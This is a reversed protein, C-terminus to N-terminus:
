LFAGLLAIKAGSTVKKVIQYVLVLNLFGFLFPGFRLNDYGLLGGLMWLFYKNLPPHPAIFNNFIPNAITAWRYEDQHYIQDVGLFRSILFFAIILLLIPNIKKM